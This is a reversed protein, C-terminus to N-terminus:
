SFSSILYPSHPLGPRSRVDYGARIKINTQVPEPVPEADEEMEMDVDEIFDYEDRKM